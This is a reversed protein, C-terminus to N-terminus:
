STGPGTSISGQTPWGWVREQEAFRPLLQCTGPLGSATVQWLSLLCIGTLIVCQDSHGQCGWPSKGRWSSTKDSGVASQLPHQQSLWHGEEAM